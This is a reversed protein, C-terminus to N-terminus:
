KSYFSIFNFTKDLVERPSDGLILVMDEKGVGGFEYYFDPAKGQISKLVQSVKWPMSKGDEEKFGPPEKSRDVFGLIYNNICFEKLKQEIRSDFRINLICRRLGKLEILARSLHGSAGYKVEGAAKPMGNVKTIRGDVAAVDERTKPNPRSYALNTRVEPIFAAFERSKELRGVAQKLESLIPDQTM